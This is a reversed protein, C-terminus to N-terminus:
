RIKQKAEAPNNLMLAITNQCEDVGCTCVCPLVCAVGHETLVCIASLVVVFSAFDKNEERTHHFALVVVDFDKMESGYHYRSSTSTDQSLGAPAKRGM